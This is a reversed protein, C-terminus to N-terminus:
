GGIADMGRKTTSCQGNALFHRAPKLLIWKSIAEAIEEDSNGSRLLLKLDFELDSFLCLRLKGDSTIRVRNCGDCFPHSRAAILGILQERDVSYLTAPGDSTQDPTLEVRHRRRLIKLVEDMGVFKGAGGSLPMYEIFRLLFENNRAFFLLGEAEDLNEPLVVTNIRIPDRFFGKADKLANLVSRLGDVGTIKRFKERDLTDLSVNLRDLGAGVLKELHRGLLIGNTTIAVTSVGRISKLTKVLEPLDRRVLPEGGTLRVKKVGLTSMIKVLRTIEEYRLIDGHHLKSVREGARCYYCALNCRDTVSIRVYEIKRGLGDTLNM